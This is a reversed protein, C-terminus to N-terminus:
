TGTVNAHTEESLRAANTALNETLAGRVIYLASNKQKEPVSRYALLLGCNKCMWRYQREIGCKRRILKAPGKIMEPLCVRRGERVVWAGDTKRSPLSKIPTDLVLSYQACHRCYLVRLGDRGAVGEESSYAREWKRGTREAEAREKREEAERRTIHGSQATEKKRQVEARHQELTRVRKGTKQLLGKVEESLKERRAVPASAGAEAM